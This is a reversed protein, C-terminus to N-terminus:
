AQHNIEPVPNMWAFDGFLEKAKKNYARGAEDEDTFAGIGHRKRNIVVQARYKQMTKDFFVGKYKSSTKTGDRYNYKPTNIGNQSHTAMRLNEFRNDLSNGNIHDTIKFRGIVMHHMYIMRKGQDKNFVETFAYPNRSKGSHMIYWTHRALLEHAGDDVIATYVQDKWKIDITKM